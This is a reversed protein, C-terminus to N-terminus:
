KLDTIMLDVKAFLEGVGLAVWLLLLALVIKVAAPIIIGTKKAILSNVPPLFLFSLVVCGVGLGPDNGWFTNVVGIAFVTLAFLWGLTSFVKSRNNM